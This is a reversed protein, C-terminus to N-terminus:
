TEQTTQAPKPKAANTMKLYTNEAILTSLSLLFIGHTLEENQGICYLFYFVLVAMLSSTSKRLKLSERVARVFIFGWFCLGFIGYEVLIMLPGNHPPLQTHGLDRTAYGWFGIGFLQEVFELNLFANFGDSSAEGRWDLADLEQANYSYGLQKNIVAIPEDILRSSIRELFEVDLEVFNGIFTFAFLGLLIMGFGLFVLKLAKKANEGGRMERVILFMSAGSIGLLSSRSTSMLIGLFMIPLLFLSLQSKSRNSINDNLVFLFSMGCIAGYFGWNVPELVDGYEDYVLPVGLLRQYVRQVPFSGVFVYTYVLDSFCILSALILSLRYYKPSNTKFFYYYGVYVCIFTLACSKVFEFTMLGYLETILLTYITFLPINVAHSRIFPPANRLNTDIMTRALMPIGILARANLPIGGLKFNVDALTLTLFVVAVVEPYKLIFYIGIIGVLAILLYQSLVDM